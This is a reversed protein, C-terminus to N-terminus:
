ADSGHPEFEGFSEGHDDNLMDTVPDVLIRRPPLPEAIM